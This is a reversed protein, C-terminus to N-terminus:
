EESLLEKLVLAAEEFVFERNKNLNNLLTDICISDHEGHLLDDITFM